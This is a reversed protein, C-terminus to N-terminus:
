PTNRPIVSSKIVVLEVGPDGTFDKQYALRKETFNKRTTLEIDIILDNNGNSFELDYINRAIVRLDEGPLATDLLYLHIDTMVKAVTGPPHPVFKRMLEKDVANPDRPYTYYLVYGQWEPYGGNKHFIPDPSTPDSFATEFVLYEDKAAGIVLSSIDTSKLDKTIKGIAVLAQMRADNKTEMLRWNKLGFSFISFAGLMFLGFLLVAMILELVTHGSNKKLFNHKKISCLPLM